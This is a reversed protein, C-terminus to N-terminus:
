AAADAGRPDLTAEVQTSQPPIPEYPEREKPSAAEKM